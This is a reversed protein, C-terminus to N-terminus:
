LWEAFEQQFWKKPMAGVCKKVVRGGVFVLVTPISLIEFRRGLDPNEDVNVRGFALEPNEACLEKYVPEMMRCPGCWPAWFDVFLPKDGQKEVTEQFNSDTVELM